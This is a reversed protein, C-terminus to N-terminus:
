RLRCRARGISPEARANVGTYWVALSEGEVLFTPMAIARWEWDHAAVLIPAAERTWRVGDGSRARAISTTQPGRWDGGGTGAGYLLVFGAGEARVDPSAVALDDYSGAPGPALVPNDPHREFLLGDSSRALGVAV